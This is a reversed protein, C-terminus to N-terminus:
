SHTNPRGEAAPLERTIGGAGVREPGGFEAWLPRTRLLRIQPIAPFARMKQPRSSAAGLPTSCAIAADIEARYQEVPRPM